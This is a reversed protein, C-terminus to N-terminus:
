KEAIHYPSLYVDPSRLKESDKIDATMKLKDNFLLKWQAAEPLDYVDTKGKFVWANPDKVSQMDMVHEQGGDDKAFTVELKPLKSDKQRDNQNMTEMQHAIKAREDFPIENLEKSVNENKEVKTTLERAKNEIQEDTMPDREPM